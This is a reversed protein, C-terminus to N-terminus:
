FQGNQRHYDDIAKDDEATYKIEPASIPVPGDAAKATAPSGEPFIPHAVVLEGRYYKNRRAMERSRKYCFRLVELDDARYFFIDLSQAQNKLVSFQRM